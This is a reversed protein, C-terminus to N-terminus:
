ILVAEKIIRERIRPKLTDRMVLDVKVDLVESLKEELELFVFIDVPKVFEVLIDIDSGDKEEGRASSGFLELSNVAYSDKLQAYHDKLKERVTDIHM